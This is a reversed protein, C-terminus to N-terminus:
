EEFRKLDEITFDWEPTHIVSSIEATSYWPSISKNAPNVLIHIEQAPMYSQALLFMKEGKENVAIDMVMVAHGPSGGQLLVDGPQIDTFPVTNLQRSLSLTGAYMFVMDLYQRFSNYTHNAATSPQWIVNNGTVAIRYGSAWKAFSAPFGNTFNFSIKDFDGGKYLYEARLRMVADACQQLDKDGVDINLVAAHVNQNAKEEGNYLHVKYGYNHLPLKRLYNGFNDVNTRNYGPPPSFREVITTGAPYILRGRETTNTEQSSSPNGTCSLLFLLGILYKRTIMLTIRFLVFLSQNEMIPYRFVHHKAKDELVKQVKRSCFARRHLYHLCRPQIHFAWAGGVWM